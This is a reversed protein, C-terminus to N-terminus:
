QEGEEVKEIDIVLEMEANEKWYDDGFKKESIYGVKENIVTIVAKATIRVDDTLSNTIRIARLRM